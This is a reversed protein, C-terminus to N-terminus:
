GKEILLLYSYTKFKGEIKTGRFEWEVKKIDNKNCNNLFSNIEKQIISFNAKLKWSNELKVSDALVIFLRHSDSFRNEGQNEYFWTILSEPDNRIEEIIDEDKSIVRKRLYQRIFERPIFSIKLDFPINLFFFDVKDIRRATPIVRPHTLIFDEIITSCWQNYWSIVVYGKIIPDLEKGIKELLEEYSQIGLTRVFHHQIHQRVDDRYVSNWADWYKDGEQAINFVSSKVKDFNINRFTSLELYVDRLLKDIQENSLNESLFLKKRIDNIITKRVENKRIQLFDRLKRSGKLPEIDVLTRIKLYRIGEQTVSMESFKQRYDRELSEYVSVDEYKVM